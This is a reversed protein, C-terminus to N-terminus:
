LSLSSLVDCAFARDSSDDCADVVVHTIRKGDLGFPTGRAGFRYTPNYIILSPHTPDKAAFLLKAGAPAVGPNVTGGSRGPELLTNSSFSWCKKLMDLDFQTLEFEFGVLSESLIVKKRKGEAESIVDYSSQSTRQFGNQFFGVETGGYPFAATLNTPALM